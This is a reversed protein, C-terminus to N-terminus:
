DPAMMGNLTGVVERLTVPKLLLRTPGEGERAVETDWDDPVDGTMVVVPLAPRDARLRRILQTGDLRPMRLDTLLIDFAGLRAAELAALGDAALTVTFGADALCEELAKAALLEDEVLLVSIPARSAAQAAIGDPQRNSM